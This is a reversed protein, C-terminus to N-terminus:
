DNGNYLFHTSPPAASTPWLPTSTHQECIIEFPIPRECLYGCRGEVTECAAYSGRPETRLLDVKSAVASSHSRPYPKDHTCSLPARHQLRAADCFREVRLQKADDNPIHTTLSPVCCTLRRPLRRPTAELTTSTM